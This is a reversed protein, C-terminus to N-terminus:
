NNTILLNLIIMQAEEDAFVHAVKVIHEIQNLLVIGHGGPNRLLLNLPTLLLLQILHM